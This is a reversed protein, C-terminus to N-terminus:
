MNIIERYNQNAIKHITTSYAGTEKKWRTPLENFRESINFQQSNSVNSRKAVHFRRFLLKKKECIDFVYYPSEQFPQYKRKEELWMIGKPLKEEEMENDSFYGKM